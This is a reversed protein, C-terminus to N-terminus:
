AGAAYGQVAQEWHQLLAETSQQHLGELEAYIARIKRTDRAACSRHLDRASLAVPTLGVFSAASIMQHAAESVAALDNDAIGRALSRGLRPANALYSDVIRQCRELGLDTLLRNVVATDLVPAQAVADQPAPELAAAKSMGHEPKPDADSLATQIARNLDGRDFPKEIFQQVTGPTVDAPNPIAATVVVVPLNRLRHDSSNRLYRALDLGSAEDLLNDTVVLDFARERLAELAGAYSNVVFPAHGLDALYGETILANVPNDEVVLLDLGSAVPHRSQQVRAPAFPLTFAFVSGGEPANRAAIEGGLFTVLRKCIALGLGTGRSGQDLGPHLYQTFPEFLWDNAGAPLGVGTDAVEFALVPRAASSGPADAVHLIVGGRTTFKLANSLLNILVHRLKQADGCMRCPMGPAFRAETSLGRARADPETVRLISEILECVDFDQDVRQLANAEARSMGLINEVLESLLKGSTRIADVHRRTGPALAGDDILETSGIISNIPTKIEHSVTALFASKARNADEAAAIAALYDTVDKLILVRGAFKSSIDLMEQVSISFIRPGLATDLTVRDPTAGRGLETLIVVVVRRLRDLDVHGYYDFGPSTEGLLIRGGAANMHVPEDDPGLLIAPEAISEFVTLYKNKENALARNQARLGEIETDPLTDTWERVLGIEIADFMELLIQRLRRRDGIDATKEEVLDFYTQRYYKMLGLFLGIDIGRSRHKRAEAVGFAVAADLPASTASHPAMRADLAAALPESLGVISARWAERLTSTYRTYDQEHAYRVVRDILWDEHDLILRKLRDM